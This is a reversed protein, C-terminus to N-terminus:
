ESIYQVNLDTDRLTTEYNHVNINHESQKGFGNNEM